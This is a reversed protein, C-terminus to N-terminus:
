LLDEATCNKCNECANCPLGTVKGPGCYECSPAIQHAGFTAFVVVNQVIM